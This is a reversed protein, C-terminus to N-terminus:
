KSRFVIRDGPPAGLTSTNIEEYTKGVVLYALKQIPESDILIPAPEPDDYFNYDINKYGSGDNYQFSLYQSGTVHSFELRFEIPNTVTISGTSTALSTNTWNDFATETISSGNLYLRYGGSCQIRFTYTNGAISTKPIFIGTAVGNIYETQGSVDYNSFNLNNTQTIADASVGEDIYSYNLSTKKYWKTTWTPSKELLIHKTILKDDIYYRIILHIDKSRKVYVYKNEGFTIIEPPFSAVINNSFYITYIETMSDYSISTVFTNDPIHGFGSSDFVKSGILIQSPYNEKSVTIYNTGISGPAEVQKAPLYIARPYISIKSNPNIDKCTYSWYGDVQYSPIDERMRNPPPLLTEYGDITRNFAGLVELTPTFFQIYATGKSQVWGDVSNYFALNYPTVLGISSEKIGLQLKHKITYKQKSLTTGTDDVVMSSDSSITNITYWNTINDPITSGFGIFSNTNYKTFKTSTQLTYDYVGTVATGSVDVLGTTLTDYFSPFKNIAFVIWYTNNARFNYFLNFDFDKVSNDISDLYVKSGTIIKTGPLGNDNSWLQAEVYAYQNSINTTKLLKIRFNKISTDILPNIKIAFSSETIDKYGAFNLQNLSSALDVTNKTECINEIYNISGDTTDYGYSAITFSDGYIDHIDEPAIISQINTCGVLDFFNNIWYPETTYSYQSVSVGIDKITTFKNSYKNLDPVYDESTITSDVPNVVKTDITRYEGMSLDPIVGAYGYLRYTEINSLTSQKYYGIMSLNKDLRDQYEQDTLYFTSNNVYVDKTLYDEKSNEFKVRFTYDQGVKNGSLNLNIAECLYSQEQYIEFESDVPLKIKNNKLENSYLIAINTSPSSVAWDSISTLSTEPLQIAYPESTSKLFSDSPKKLINHLIKYYPLNTDSFQSINRFNNTNMKESYPIMSFGLVNFANAIKTNRLNQLIKYFPNFLYAAIDSNGLVPKAFNDAKMNLYIISCNNIMAQSDANVHITDSTTLDPYQLIINCIVDYDDDVEPYYEFESWDNVAMEIPMPSSYFIKIDNIPTEYLNGSNRTALSVAMFDFKEPSSLGSLSNADGLLADNTITENIKYRFPDTQESYEGDILEFHTKDKSFLYVNSDNIGTKEFGLYSNFDNKFFSKKPGVYWSTQFTNNDFTVANGASYLPYTSTFDLDHTGFYFLFHYWNSNNLASPLKIKFFYFDKNTSTASGASNCEFATFGLSTAQDGPSLSGLISGIYSSTYLTPYYYIGLDIPINNLPNIHQAGEFYKKNVVLHVETAPSSPVGNGVSIYRSCNFLPVRSYGSSYRIPYTYQTRGLGSYPETGYIVYSTNALGSSNYPPIYRSWANYDYYNWGELCPPSNITPNFYFSTQYKILKPDLVIEGGQIGFGVNDLVDFTPLVSEETIPDKQCFDYDHFISSGRLKVVLKETDLLAARKKSTNGIKSIFDDKARGISNIILELGKRTIESM